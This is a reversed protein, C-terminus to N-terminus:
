HVITCVHAGQGIGEGKVRHGAFVSIQQGPAAHVPRRGRRKRETLRLASQRSGRAAAM